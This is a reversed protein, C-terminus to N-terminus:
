RSFWSRTTPLVLLCFATVPLLISLGDWIGFSFEPDPIVTAVFSILLLGELLAAVTWVRAKRSSWKVAVWCILLALVISIFPLGIGMLELDDQTGLMFLLLSVGGLLTLIGQIMMISQTSKATLPMRDVEPTEVM